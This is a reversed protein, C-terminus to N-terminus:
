PLVSNIASLEAIVYRSRRRPAFASGSNSHRADGVGNLDPAGNTSSASGRGSPRPNWLLGATASSLTPLEPQPDIEVWDRRLARTTPRRVTSRPCLSIPSGCTCPSSDAITLSIQSLATVAGSDLSRYTKGLGSVQIM